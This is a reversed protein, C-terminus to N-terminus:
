TYSGVPTLVIGIVLFRLIRPSNIQNRFKSYLVSAHHIIGHYLEIEGISCVGRFYNGAKGLLRKIKKYEEILIFNDILKTILNGNSRRITIQNQVAYRGLM